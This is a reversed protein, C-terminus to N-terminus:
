RRSNPWSKLRELRRSVEAGTGTGYPIGSMSNWTRSNSSPSSGTNVTKGRPLKHKVTSLVAYCAGSLSDALDDTGPSIGGDRKPYIKYGDNTYRRQLSLLENKLLIHHPIQLKENNILAELEDYIIKQYRRTFPTCKAPISHKLLKKISADSNHSIIGNSIFTHDGSVELHCITANTLEISVIKDWMQRSRSKKKGIIKRIGKNKKSYYPRQDINNKLHIAKDILKKKETSRFNIEKAFIDVNDGYITIRYYPYQKGNFFKNTIYKLSSKIGFNLLLLHIDKALEKSSTNYEVHINGKSISINGDGEYLSSLFAAVIEKSGQMVFEPITKHYCDVASITKKIDESIYQQHCINYSQKHHKKQKPNIYVYPKIGTAITSVSMYDNIVEFNTNTFKVAYRPNSSFYGESILYGSMLAYNASSINNNSCNNEDNFNVFDQLYVKDGIFLNQAETFNQGNWFLHNQTVEVEYGLKTRIKLCPVNIKVEKNLVTEWKGLRNKVSDGVKIDIAKQLGKKTCIRTLYHCCNWNDYTVSYLYFRRKLNIIYEDVEDSNIPKDPSPSWYKIHDVIINFDVKNTETNKFMEKHVIVLAYNHSNKAPDLHAYYVVGPEGIKKIQLSHKFCAEIKDKSFFSQGGTGSFQSGYEMLFEEDTLETSANRLSKETLDPNIEWTALRIALRDPQSPSNKFLNYFVGEEGRPSAICILKSDFIKNEVENGNEDLEKVTRYFTSLSPTLATLIREGSSSGSTQKYSAMEDLILVFIQEGLLSDSNSHGVRIAISGNGAPLGRAELEQNKIKDKSTFLYIVGQQWGKVDIKDAFYKSNQIKDKIERFAIEAQKAATAVTLITISNSESIKYFVYPDGGECELLRMAEYAAIISCQFDKGSNHCIIDNAIFNHCNNKSVSIDFTRKEGILKISKIDMWIIDDSCVNSIFDNNLVKNIQKIKNRGPSYQRHCRVNKNNYYKLLDKNKLKREKKIVDIHEWIEIPISYIQSNNHKDCLIYNNIINISEEVLENKGKFGIEQLYKLVNLHDKIDIEYVWGCSKFNSKINERKRLRSVIGFRLLLHHVGYALKKSVTSFCVGYRYKNDRPIWEKYLSGDCSFLSKLYSSIINKPSMYIKEPVFKDYVICNSINHKRLFIQLSNPFSDRKEKTIAYQYEKSEAGTYIDKKIITKNNPNNEITSLCYRFHELIDNNACTFCTRSYRSCGDGTMYGILSAEEKTISNDNGFINIISPVAIRDNEKLESLLKWGNITLFPHNDTAEIYRGDSLLLKYVPKVGNEIIESNVTNVFKYTKEDMSCTSINKIGKDWLQGIIELKGNNSNIVKTDESVCRRGWVLVLERLIKSNNYKDLVCGRDESNLDLDECMKIEEDTLRLNENGRSGRYFIKLIIKQFPRLKIGRKNFGLYDDSECFTIIDPIDNNDVEISKINTIINDIKNCLNKFRKRPM